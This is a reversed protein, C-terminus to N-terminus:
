FQQHMLYGTPKLLNFLRIPTCDVSLQTASRSLKGPKSIVYFARGPLLFLDSIADERTVRVKGTFTM